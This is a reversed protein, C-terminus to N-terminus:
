TKKDIETERKWFLCPKVLAPSSSFIKNLISCVKAGKNERTTRNVWAPRQQQQEPGLHVPKPGQTNFTAVQNHLPLGARLVQGGLETTVTSIM